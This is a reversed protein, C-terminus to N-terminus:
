NVQTRPLVFFFETGKEMSSEVWIKGKHRDIIEKAIALGLGTGGANTKTRSSQVFKNFVSRLEDAPIDVGKDLVSLQIAPSKSQSNEDDIITDKISVVIKENKNSFKIANTILNLIVQTVKDVDATLKTETTLKEFVLKLSKENLLTAVDVFVSDVVSVLDFEEFSLEM